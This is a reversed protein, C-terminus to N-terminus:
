EFAAHILILSPALLKVPLYGVSDNGSFCAKLQTSEVGLFIFQKIRIVSVRM